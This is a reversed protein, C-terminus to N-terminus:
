QKPNRKIPPLSTHAEEMKKLNCLLLKGNNDRLHMGGGECYRWYQCDKCLDTKM